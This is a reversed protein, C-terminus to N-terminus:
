AATDSLRGSAAAEGGAVLYISLIIVGRWASIRDRRFLWQSGGKLAVVVVSTKGGHRRLWVSVSM